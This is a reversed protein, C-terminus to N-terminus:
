VAAQTSSVIAALITVSVVFYIIRQGVAVILAEHHSLDRFFFLTLVVAHVIATIAHFVFDHRPALSWAADILGVIVAVALLKAIDIKISGFGFGTGAYNLALLILFDGIAALCLSYVLVTLFGPM